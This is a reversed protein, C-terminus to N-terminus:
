FFLPAKRKQTPDWFQSSWDTAQGPWEGPQPDVQAFRRKRESEEWPHLVWSWAKKGWEVWSHPFREQLKPQLSIRGTRWTASPFPSAAVAAAALDSWDHGVRHSGMSPLESPEEIGPIRWALTSSHTTMAEETFILKLGAKESEEKVKMLLSKPEEEREAMLTTDDAYRLNNINRGAIKNGAQVKDLGSNWMIYEVYLNFLCPLLVCGSM